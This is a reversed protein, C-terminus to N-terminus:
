RCVFYVKVDERFKGEYRQYTQDCFIPDQNNGKCILVSVFPELERISHGACWHFRADRLSHPRRGKSGLGRGLGRRARDARAPARKSRRERGHPATDARPTPAPETNSSRRRWLVGRRAACHPICCNLTLAPYNLESEM